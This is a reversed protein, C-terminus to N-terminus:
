LSDLDPQCKGPSIDLFLDGAALSKCESGTKIEEPATASQFIQNM